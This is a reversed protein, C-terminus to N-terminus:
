KAYGETLEFKTFNITVEVIGARHVQNYLADLNPNRHLGSGLLEGAREEGLRKKNQVYQRRLRLLERQDKKVALSAMRADDFVLKMLDHIPVEGLSIGQEVDIMSAPMGQSVLGQKEHLAVTTSRNFGLLVDKATPGVTCTKGLPKISIHFKHRIFYDELSLGEAKAELQWAKGLQTNVTDITSTSIIKRFENYAFLGDANFKTEVLKETEVFTSEIFGFLVEQPTFHVQSVSQEEFHGSAPPLREVTSEAIADSPFSGGLVALAALGAVFKNARAAVKSKNRRAEQRLTYTAQVADRRVRSIAGKERAALM